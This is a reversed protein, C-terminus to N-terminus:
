LNIEDDESFKIAVARLKALQITKTFSAEIEGMLLTLNISAMRALDKIFKVTQKTPPQSVQQM